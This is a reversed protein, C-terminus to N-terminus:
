FSSLASSMQNNSSLSSLGQVTPSQSPKYKEGQPLKNLSEQSPLKTFRLDNGVHGKIVGVLGEDSWVPGGSDGPQSSPINPDTNKRRHTRNKYGTPNDSDNTATGNVVKGLNRSYNHIIDGSNWTQSLKDGSYSNSGANMASDLLIYAFDEVNEGNATESPKVYHFTGVKRIGNKLYVTEGDNFCHKATYLRRNIKDVYGVTCSYGLNNIMDGQNVTSFSGNDLITKDKILPETIPRPDKISSSLSSQAFAQPTIMMTITTIGTLIKYRTKM